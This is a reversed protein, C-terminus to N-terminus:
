RVGIVYESDTALRAWIKPWKRDAAKDCVIPQRLLSVAARSIWGVSMRNTVVSPEMETLVHVRQIFLLSTCFIEDSDEFHGKSVNLNTYSTSHTCSTVPSNKESVTFKRRNIVRTSNCVNKHTPLFHKQSLILLSSAEENAQDARTQTKSTPHTLATIMKASIDIELCLPVDVDLLLM